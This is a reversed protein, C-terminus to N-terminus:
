ASASDTAVARKWFRHLSNALQILEARKFRGIPRAAVLGLWEMARDAAVPCARTQALVEQLSTHPSLHQRSTLEQLIVEAELVPSKAFAPVPSSASVTVNPNNDNAM